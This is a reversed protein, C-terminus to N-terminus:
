AGGAAATALARGSGSAGAGGGTRAGGAAVADGRCSAARVIARAKFEDVRAAYAATWFGDGVVCGHPLWM